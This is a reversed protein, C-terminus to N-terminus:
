RFLLFCNTTTKRSRIFSKVNKPQTGNDIAQVNILVFKELEYNPVRALHLNNLEIYVLDRSSENSLLNFTHTQYVDQDRVSLSGVITGIPSNEAVSNRELRLGVPPDNEDTIELKIWFKQSIPPSGNDTVRVHIYLSDTQEYDHPCLNPELM